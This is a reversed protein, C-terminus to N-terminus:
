WHKGFSNATVVCRTRGVDENLYPVFIEINM